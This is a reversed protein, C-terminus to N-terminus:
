SQEVNQILVNEYMEGGGDSKQWVWNARLQYWLDSYKKWKKTKRTGELCIGKYVSIFTWKKVLIIYFQLLRIFRFIM